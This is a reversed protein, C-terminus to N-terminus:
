NNIGFDYNNSKPKNQGKKLYLLWSEKFKELEEKSPYEKMNSKWYDAYEKPYERKKDINTNMIDWEEKTLFREKEWYM